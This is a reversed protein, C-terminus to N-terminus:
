ANRIIHSNYGSIFEAASAPDALVSHEVATGSDANKWGAPQRFIVSDFTVGYFASMGIETMSAPITLTKLAACNQFANTGITLLGEGLAVEALKRCNFFARTGITETGSGITVSTLESCGYFASEGIATASGPITIRTLATCGRFAQDGIQTAGGLDIEALAECEYFACNGITPAGEITVSELADCGDFAYADIATVTAPITFHTILEGCRSFSSEGITKVSAGFQVEALNARLFLEAPITEVKDGIVATIGDTDNGANYFTSGETQANVANYHILTLDSCNTFAYNGITQVSEPITIEAIPTKAFARFGIETVANGFTVKKLSTCNEFATSRIEEVYDGFAIEELATCSSFAAAYILTLRSNGEFTVTKM